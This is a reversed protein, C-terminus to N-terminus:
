HYTVNSYQATMDFTGFTHHVTSLEQIPQLPCYRGGVRDGNDKRRLWRRMRRKDPHCFLSINNQNVMVIKWLESIDRYFLVDGDVIIVKPIMGIPQFPSQGIFLRSKSTIGSHHITIFKSEEVLRAVRENTPANSYYYM